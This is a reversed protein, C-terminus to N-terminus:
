KKKSNSGLKINLEEGAYIPAYIEAIRTILESKDINRLDLGQGAIEIKGNEVEFNNKSSATVMKVDGTNIFGAGNIYIGNPNALIYDAKKGAIEQYGEIRSRNVGSVENIITSAENRNQLNPNGYILGGLESKILDKSNNLIAGRSDVNYDKYVNHSTGNKDPAEINVLPVGNPAKDVQLNPSKVKDAVIPEAISFGDLFLMLIAIWKKLSRKM